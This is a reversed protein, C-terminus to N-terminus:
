AVNIRVVQNFLNTNILEFEEPINYDISLIDAGRTTICNLISLYVKNQRKEQLTILIM